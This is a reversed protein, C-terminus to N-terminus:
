GRASDGKAPDLLQLIQIVARPLHFPDKVPLAVVETIPQGQHNLRQRWESGDPLPFHSFSWDHIRQYWELCWPEGTLEHALLLAYLAETHPWWLKNAAHPMWPTHGEADIGHVLGGFETDWGAELHWHIVEVARRILDMDGRRRAWHMIFWMCEIAHGPIVYTGEPAPLEQYDVTLNEVLLHRAPRVFHNMLRSVYEGAAADLAPDGTTQALEDSVLTLMMPIAHIRHGPTLRFPAVEDFDPEEVRRRVRALTERAVALLRDGPVARCYESIGYVAFLDAYISTAGELPAGERTTSYVFRGQSDRAHALLFEITRRAIELFEPRPEIRNYVAAMTWVFRAQSWIYKDTSIPAGDEEMCSLVGGYERDVGHRLWFPVIGDLLLTRYSNYLAKRDM